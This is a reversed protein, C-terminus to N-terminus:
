PSLQAFKFNLRLQMHPPLESLSSYLEDKIKEEKRNSIICGKFNQNHKM